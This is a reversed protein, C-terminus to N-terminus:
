PIHGSNSQAWASLLCQIILRVFSEIFASHDIIVKTKHEHWNKVEELEELEVSFAIVLKVLKSIIDSHSRIVQQGHRRDTM